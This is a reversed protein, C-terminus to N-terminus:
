FVEQEQDRELDQHTERRTVMEAKSKKKTEKKQPNICTAWATVINNTPSNTNKTKSM